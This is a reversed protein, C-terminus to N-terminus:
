RAMYVNDPPRGGAACMSESFLGVVGVRISGSRSALPKVNHLLMGRADAAFASGLLVACCMDVYVYKCRSVVAM